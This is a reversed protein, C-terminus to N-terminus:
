WSHNQSHGVSISSVWAETARRFIGRRREQVIEADKQM